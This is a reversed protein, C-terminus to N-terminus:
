KRITVISRYMMYILATIGHYCAKIFISNFCREHRHGYTTTATSIMATHGCSTDNNLILVHNFFVYM